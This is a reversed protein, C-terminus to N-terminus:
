SPGSAAIPLHHVNIRGSEFPETCFWKRLQLHTTRASYGNACVVSLAGTSDKGIAIKELGIKEVGNVKLERPLDEVHSLEKM